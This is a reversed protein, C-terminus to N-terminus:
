VMWWHNGDYYFSGTMDTHVPKDDDIIFSFPKGENICDAGVAFVYWGSMDPVRQMSPRNEWTFGMRESCKEGDQQWLWIRPASSQTGKIYISVTVKVGCRYCFLSHLPLESGCSQCCLPKTVREGCEHCFAADDAVETGCKPCQKM